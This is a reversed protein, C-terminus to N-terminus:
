LRVFPAVQMGDEFLWGKTYRATLAVKSISETVMGHTAPNVVLRQYTQHVVEGGMAREYADEPLLSAKCGKARAESVGDWDTKKYAKSTIMRYERGVWEQCAHGPTYRQKADEASWDHEAPDYVMRVLRKADEAPHENAVEADYEALMETRVYTRLDNRTRFYETDFLPSDPDMRDVDLPEDLCLGIYLSDTDSGAIVIREAPIYRFLFDYIFKLMRLKSMQLVYFGMHVPVAEKVDESRKHVVYVPDQHEGCYFVDRKQFESDNIAKFVSAEDLVPTTKTTYNRPNLCFRGWSSNAILKQLNGDAKRKPTATMAAHRRASIAEVFPQFVEVAKFRARAEVASVELGQELYWALTNGDFWQGETELVQVLKTEEWGSWDTRKPSRAREMEKQNERLMDWLVAGTEYIPAWQSFRTRLHYPVRVSCKLFDLHDGENLTRLCEDTTDETFYTIDGAGCPAKFYFTSPYLNVFDVGWITHVYGTSPKQVYQGNEWVVLPPRRAGAVVHRNYCGSFGGVISGRMEEVFRGRVEDGDLGLVCLLEDAHIHLCHKKWFVFPSETKRGSNCGSCSLCVNDDSHGRENDYRDLVWEEKCEKRCYMCCGQQAEFVAHVGAHTLTCATLRQTDQSAYGAIREAVAGATPLTYACTPFVKAPYKALVADNAMETMIKEAVGPIGCADKTLVVKYLDWFKAQFVLWADRFPETDAMCYQELLALWPHEPNMRKAPLWQNAWFKIWNDNCVHKAKQNQVYVAKSCGAPADKAVMPNTQSLDSWFEAKTPPTTRDFVKPSNYSGYPCFLKTEKGLQEKCFNALTTPGTYHMSDYFVFRELRLEKYDFAGSNICKKIPHATGRAREYELLPQLFGEKFLLHNDYGSGNHALVPLCYMYDRLAETDKQVKAEFVEELTKGPHKKAYKTELQTRQWDKMTALRVAYHNRLRGLVKDRFAGWKADALRVCAEQAPNLFDHVVAHMMADVSPYHPLM